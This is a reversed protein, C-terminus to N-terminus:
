RDLNRRQALPALCQVVPATSRALPEAVNLLVTGVNRGIGHIRQRISQGPVHALQLNNSVRPTAKEPSLAACEATPVSM